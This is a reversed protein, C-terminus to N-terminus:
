VLLLTTNKEVTMLAIQTQFLAEGAYFGTEGEAQDQLSTMMSKNKRHWLRNCSFSQLTM